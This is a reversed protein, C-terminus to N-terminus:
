FSVIVSSMTILRTIFLLHLYLNQGISLHCLCIFFFFCNQIQSDAKNQFLPVLQVEASDELQMLSLMVCFKVFDVFKFLIM